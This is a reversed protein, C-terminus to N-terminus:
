ADWTNDTLAMHEEVRALQWLHKPVYYVPGGADNWCLLFMAWQPDGNSETLYTCSDWGLLMDMVNPWRGDHEDAWEFDCGQIQTLDSETECIHVYGGLLDAFDEGAEKQRLLWNIDEGTIALPDAVAPHPNRCIGILVSAQDQLLRLPIRRQRCFQHAEKFHHLVIM